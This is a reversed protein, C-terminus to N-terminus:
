GGTLPAEGDNIQEQIQQMLGRVQDGSFLGDGTMRIEINRNPQNQGGGGGGANQRPMSVSAGGGGAGSVKESNVASLQKKANAVLLASMGLAVYFNNEAFARVIGAATNIAIEARRQRKQAKKSKSGFADNLALVANAALQVNQIKQLRERKAQEMRRQSEEKEIDTKAAEHAAILSLELEQQELLLTFDDEGLLRRQDMAEQLKTIQEKHFIDELEARSAFTKKIDNLTAQSAAKLADRKKAEQDAIRKLEEERKKAEAEEKKADLDIKEKKKEEGGQVISELQSFGESAVQAAQEIKTIEEQLEIARDRATTFAASAGGLLASGGMPQQSVKQVEELEARLEMLKFEAQISSEGIEAMKKKADEVSLAKFAATQDDIAKTTKETQKETDNQWDIFMALSAAVTVLIGVPGGLFALATRATTASAALIGMGGAARLSAANTAILAVKSAVLPSVFKSTIAVGAIAIVKSFADINEAVFLVSDGAADVATQLSENNSVFEIAKNSAVEMKQAYTASATSFEGDITSAYDELSKILVKSTILGDAALKRLEGATKGTAASVAEMIIPAQEAISNFEDGRLAGSALAQGLQRISGSSEATTAGSIAFAKNISGTIKLLRDQSVGLSRTSREMKAYLEVTSEVSARTENATEFLAKTVKNFDETSKTALKLKNSISTAADAYQVTKVIAVGLAASAAIKVASGWRSWQKENERLAEGTQNLAKKTDKQGKRVDSTDSTVKVSITGIEANFSM